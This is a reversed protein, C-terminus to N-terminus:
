QLDEPVTPCERLKPLHSPATITAFSVARASATAVLTGFTDFDLSSMSSANSVAEFIGPMTPATITM